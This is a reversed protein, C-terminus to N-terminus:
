ERKAITYAILTAEEYLPGARALESRASKTDTDLFFFSLMAPIIEEASGIMEANAVDKIAIRHLQELCSGGDDCGTSALDEKSAKSEFANLCEVPAFSMLLREDLAGEHASAAITYPISFLGGTCQSYGLSAVIAIAILTHLHKM